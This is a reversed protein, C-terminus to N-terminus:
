GRSRTQTSRNSATASPEKPSTSKTLVGDAGAAVIARALPM